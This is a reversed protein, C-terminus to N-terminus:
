AHICFERHSEWPWTGCDACNDFSGCDECDGGVLRKVTGVGIDVDEIREIYRSGGCKPCRLADDLSPTIM